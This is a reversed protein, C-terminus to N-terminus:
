AKKVRALEEYAFVGHSFFGGFNKKFPQAMLMFFKIMVVERCDVVTYLPEGGGSVQDIV